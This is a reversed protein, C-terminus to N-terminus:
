FPHWRGINAATHSFLDAGYSPGYRWQNVTANMLRTEADRKRKNDVILQELTDGLVEHSQAALRLALVNTANIKNLIATQTQFSDTGSGADAEMTDIVQLDINSTERMVGVQDIGMIAVADALEINAYQTALPGRLADPMRWAVDPFSDLFDAMSRYGAGGPDGDNLGKLIGSAYFVAGLEHAAWGPTYAHYRAAMNVPLRKAQTLLFEYQKILQEVQAIAQVYTAPDFVVLQARVPSCLFALAVAVTAISVVFRKM